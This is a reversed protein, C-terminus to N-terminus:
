RSGLQLLGSMALEYRGDGSGVSASVGKSIGAPANRTVGSPTPRRKGRPAAQGVRKRTQWQQEGLDRLWSRLGAVDFTWVGDMKIAVGKGFTGREAKQQMVREKLGVIGMAEAMQVREPENPLTAAGM